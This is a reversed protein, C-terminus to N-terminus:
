SIPSWEHFVGEGLYFYTNGCVCPWALWAERWVSWMGLECTAQSAPHSWWLRWSRYPFSERPPGTSNYKKHGDTIMGRMTIYYRPPNYLPNHECQKILVGQYTNDSSLIHLSVIYRTIVRSTGQSSMVVM